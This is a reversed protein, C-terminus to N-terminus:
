FFFRNCFLPLASINPYIKYLKNNNTLIKKQKKKRHVAMLPSYFRNNNDNNYATFELSIAFSQASMSLINQLLQSLSTVSRSNLQAADGPLCPLIRGELPVKTKSRSAVPVRRWSRAFACSAGGSATTNTRSSPSRAFPTTPTRRRRQWRSRRTKTTTTLKVRITVTRTRNASAGCRVCCRRTTASNSTYAGVVHAIYSLSPSWTFDTYYSHRTRIGRYVYSMDSNDTPQTPNTQTTDNIPWFNPQTMPIASKHFVVLGAYIYSQISYRRALENKCNPADNKRWALHIRTWNSIPQIWRSIPDVVLDWFLFKQTWIGAYEVQASHAAGGIKHLWPLLIYVACQATCTPMSNLAWDCLPFCRVTSFTPGSKSPYQMIHAFHPRNNRPQIPIM